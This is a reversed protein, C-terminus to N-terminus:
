LTDKNGICEINEMARLFSDNGTDEAFYYDIEEMFKATKRILLLKEQLVKLVDPRFNHEKLENELESAFLEAGRYACGSFYGISMYTGRCELKAIEERLKTINSDQEMYVALVKERVDAAVSPHLELPLASLSRIMKELNSM